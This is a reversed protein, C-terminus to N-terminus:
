LSFVIFQSDVVDVFLFLTGCLGREGTCGVARAPGLEGDGPVEAAVVTTVGSIQARMFSAASAVPKSISSEPLPSL